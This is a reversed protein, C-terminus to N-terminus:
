RRTTSARQTLRMPLLAGQIPLEPDEWRRRLYTWVLECMAAFPQAVTSIAPQCYAAERIGDSGILAVDDPVRLGMEGLARNAGIAVEDNWCFIGDPPDKPDVHTLVAQYGAEYDSAEAVPILIPESGAERVTGAYGAFRKDDECLFDWRGAYAVRKCGIEFLHRVAALSGGYLDVGVHDTRDSYAPGISVIPPAPRAEALIDNVLATADHAIIADFNTASLFGAQRLTSCVESHIQVINVHIDNAKALGVVGGAIHNFVSRDILPVWLAVTGSRGTALSKAARNPEYGLVEAAHFVKKRTEERIRKGPRRTLVYSVTAQSVGALKAVDYSNIRDGM